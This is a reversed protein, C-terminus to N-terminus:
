ETYRYKYLYLAMIIVPGRRNAVAAQTKRGVNRSPSRGDDDNDDDDDDDDDDAAAAAANDMDRRIGTSTPPLPFSPRRTDICSRRNAV